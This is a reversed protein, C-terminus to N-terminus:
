CSNAIKSFGDCYATKYIGKMNYTDWINYM